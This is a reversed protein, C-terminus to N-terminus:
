HINCNVSCLAYCLVRSRSYRLQQRLPLWQMQNARHQQLGHAHGHSQREERVLYQRRGVGLDVALEWARSRAAAATRAAASHPLQLPTQHPRLTM